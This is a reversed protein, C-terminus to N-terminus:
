SFSGKAGSGRGCSNEAEMKGELYSDCIGLVRHERGSTVGLLLRQQVMPSSFPTGCVETVWSRLDAFLSWSSCPNWQTDLDECPPSPAGLQEWM